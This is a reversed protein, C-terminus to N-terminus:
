GGGVVFVEEVHAVRLAACGEEGHCGLPGFVVCFDAEHDGQCRHSEDGVSFM